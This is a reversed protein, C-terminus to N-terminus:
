VAALKAAGDRSLRLFVIRGDDPSGQRVVLGAQEARQVLETVASQTLSLKEVLEPGTPTGDTSGGIQLLLLYQRPTIGAARAVIESTRLFQRLASRFEAAGSYRNAM